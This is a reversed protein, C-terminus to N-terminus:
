ICLSIWSSANAFLIRHGSVCDCMRCWLYLSLSLALSHTLTGLISYVYNNMQDGRGFRWERRVLWRCVNLAAAAAAATGPTRTHILSGSPMADVAIADTGDTTHVGFVVPRRISCVSGSGCLLRLMYLIALTSLCCVCVCM